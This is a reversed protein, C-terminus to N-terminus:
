TVLRLVMYNVSLYFARWLKMIELYTSTKHKYISRVVRDNDSTEVFVALDIHYLIPGSIFPPL